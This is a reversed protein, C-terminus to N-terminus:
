NSLIEELEEYKEQMSIRDELSQIIQIAKFINAQMDKIIEQKKDIDQILIAYDSNSEHHNIQDHLNETAQM